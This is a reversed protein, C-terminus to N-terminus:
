FVEKYIYREILVFNAPGEYLPAETITKKKVLQHQILMLITPFLISDIPSLSVKPFGIRRLIDYEHM